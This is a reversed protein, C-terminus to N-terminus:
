GLRSFSTELSILKFQKLNLLRSVFPFPIFLTQKLNGFHEDPNETCHADPSWYTGTNNNLTNLAKVQAPNGIWQKHPSLRAGSKRHQACGPKSMNRNKQATYDPSWLAGFKNHVTFGFKWTSQIEQASYIHVKIHGSKRHLTRTSQLTSRIEQTNNM